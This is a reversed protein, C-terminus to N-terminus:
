RNTLLYDRAIVQRSVGLLRLILAAGFGTRDKGATCHFLLPVSDDELLLMLLKRYTQAHDLAFARYIAAMVEEPAAGNGHWEAAMADVSGKLTPEIPMASVAAVVDDAVGPAQDREAARAIAADVLEPPSLEGKRVRDALGTADQEWLIREVSM